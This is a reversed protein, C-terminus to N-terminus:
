RIRTIATIASTAFKTLRFAGGGVGYPRASRLGRSAPRILWATRGAGRVAGRAACAAGHADAELAEEPLTDAVLFPPKAPQDIAHAFVISAHPALTTAVWKAMTAVLATSRECRSPSCTHRRRDSTFTGSRWRECPM